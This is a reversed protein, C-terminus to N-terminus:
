DGEIFFYGKDNNSNGSVDKRYVVYIFHESTDSIDYTVKTWNTSLNGTPNYQKSKTNGNTYATASNYATPYSAADLTSTVVYDYSSEAYSNIYLSFTDYGSFTIKAVSYSSNIGQNTSEYITKTIENNVINAKPM